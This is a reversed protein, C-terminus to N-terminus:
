AWGGPSLRHWRAASPQQRLLQALVTAEYGPAPDVERKVALWRVYVREAMGVLVYGREGATELVARCRDVDNIPVAALGAPVVDDGWLGGQPGSVVEAEPRASPSGITPCGQALLM